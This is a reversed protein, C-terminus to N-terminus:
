HEALSWQRTMVENSVQGSSWVGDDSCSQLENPHAYRRSFLCNKKYLGFKTQMVWVENSRGMSRTRIFLALALKRFRIQVEDPSGFNSSQDRIWIFSVILGRGSRSSRGRTQIVRTLVM